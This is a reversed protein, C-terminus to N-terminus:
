GKEEEALKIDKRVYEINYNGRPNYCHVSGFVGEPSDEYMSDLYIREPYESPKKMIKENGGGHIRLHTYLNM